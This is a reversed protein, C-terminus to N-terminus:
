KDGTITIEQKNQHGGKVSQKISTKKSVNTGSTGKKFFFSFLRPLLAGFWELIVMKFEKLKYILMVYFRLLLEPSFPDGMSSTPTPIVVALGSTFEGWWGGM